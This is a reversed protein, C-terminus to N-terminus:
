AGKGVNRKEYKRMNVLMDFDYYNEEGTRYFDYYLRLRNDANMEIFKSGLKLFHNSLETGVRRFYTRAEDLSNKNITITIYKEQIIGNSGVIQSLLMNNYEKRYIDMNDNCMPLLITKEFDIKNLRRNTISIKTTAGVDFSNLIESYDLFMEEKDEKSAVAYNIDTFRFTKSYTNKGVLFIGDKWIRKIPIIDQVGKPAIFKEKDKKFLKM